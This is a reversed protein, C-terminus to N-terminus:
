SGNTQRPTKESRLGCATAWLHIRSRREHCASEPSARLGNFGTPANSLALVAETVRRMRPKNFDIGGVKTQGVPTPLPLNELTEYSVCGADMCGVTNLFRELIERLRTVIKAFCSLPRSWRYERTNHV